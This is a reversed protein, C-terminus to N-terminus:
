DAVAKLSASYESLLNNGEPDAEMYKGAVYQQIKSNFDDEAAIDRPTVGTQAMRAAAYEALQPLADDADNLVMTVLLQPNVWPYQMYANALRYAHGEGYQTEYNTQRQRYATEADVINQWFADSPNAM